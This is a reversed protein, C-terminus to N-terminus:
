GYRVRRHKISTSTDGGAKGSARRRFGRGELSMVEKEGHGRAEM